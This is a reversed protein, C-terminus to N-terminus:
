LINKLEEFSSIIHTPDGTEQTPLELAFKGNQFWITTAGKRNGWAIGRVTRDDILAIEQPNVALETLLKEYMENKDDAGVLIHDFYQAIGSEEISKRRGEPTESKALSVLALTYKAAFEPILETVGEFLIDREPDHITRGWDFILTTLTPQM